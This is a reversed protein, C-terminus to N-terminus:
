IAKELNSCVSNGERSKYGKLTTDAEMVWVNQIGCVKFNKPLM